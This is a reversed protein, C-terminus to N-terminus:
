FDWKSINKDIFNSFELFMNDYDLELNHNIELVKRLLSIAKKKSVEEWTIEFILKGDFDSTFVISPIYLEENVLVYEDLNDGGNTLKNEIELRKWTYEAIVKSSKSLLDAHIKAQSPIEISISKRNKTAKVFKM